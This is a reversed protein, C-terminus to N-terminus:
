LTSTKIWHDGPNLKREIGDLGAMLLAAFALYGNSSHIQSACKSVSRRRARHICPFVGCGLPKQSSYALNVPQRSGLCSVATPIPWNAWSRVCPRPMPSFALSTTCQWSASVVTATALSSRSKAEGSRNTCAHRLWQRRLDAPGFTATKGHKKAVNKVIYKYWQACRGNQRAVLLAHRNRKVQLRWKMTSANSASASRRWTNCWRRGFTRSPTPPHFQFYGEKYRPKYGLNPSAKAPTGCVKWQISITIPKHQNQDFRVDDFFLSSQSQGTLWTALAPPSCTPKQKVLSIVLIM